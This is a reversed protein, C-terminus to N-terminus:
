HKEQRQSLFIQWLIEIDNTDARILKRKEIFEEFSKIRRAPVGGWVGSLNIDKTVISGAAIIVDDCIKVNPMILTNAGIMVNNGIQIPARYPIYKQEEGRCNLVYHIIDHTIFTCGSAIKVNNGIAILETDDPLKRPQFFLDKGVHHFLKKHRYLWKTRAGSTPLLAFIVKRYLKIIYCFTM